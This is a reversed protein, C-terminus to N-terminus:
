TRTSSMIKQKNKKLSYFHKKKKIENRLVRFYYYLFVAQDLKFKQGRTSSDNKRRRKQKEQPRPSLM